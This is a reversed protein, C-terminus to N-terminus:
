MRVADITEDEFRGAPQRGGGEDGNRIRAQGDVVEVQTLSYDAVGDRTVDCSLVYGENGGYSQEDFVLNGLCYAILAGQYTEVEGCVHAHHGVVVDAGLEVALHALGREYDSVNRSGEKGWHFSVVVVDCREALAAVTERLMEENLLLISERQPDHIFTTYPFHSYAIFGVRLGSVSIVAGKKAAALTDGVGVPRIGEAELLGMCQELGARQYDIAHNNALSMVDFGVQKLVAAMAPAARLANVRPFRTERNTIVAELNGFTVDGAQLLAAVQEFPYDNGERACTEAVGRGLMVDGVCVLRVQSESRPGRCGCM